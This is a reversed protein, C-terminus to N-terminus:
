HNPVGVSQTNNDGDKAVWGITPITLISGAGLRENRQMFLLSAGGPKNDVQGLNQNVNRFEYDVGANSVNIEWNHMSRANGGWRVLTAGLWRLLDEDGPTSDAIGYI